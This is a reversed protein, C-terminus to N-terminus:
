RMRWKRFDLEVNWREVVGKDEDMRMVWVPSAACRYSECGIYM